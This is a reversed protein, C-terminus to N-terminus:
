AIKISKWSAVSAFSSADPQAPSHDLSAVSWM